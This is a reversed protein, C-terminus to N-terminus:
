GLSTNKDTWLQALHVQRLRLLQQPRQCNDNEEEKDEEDEDCDEDEDDEDDRHLTGTQGCTCFTSRVFGSSSTVGRVTTMRRRKMRTMMVM